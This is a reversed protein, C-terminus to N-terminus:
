TPWTGQIPPPALAILTTLYLAAAGPTMTSATAYGGLEIIASHTAQGIEEVSRRLEIATKLRELAYTQQYNM